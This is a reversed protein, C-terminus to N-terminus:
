KKKKKKDKEEEEEEKKEAEEIAESSSNTAPVFATERPPNDMYAYITYGSMIVWSVLIGCTGSLTVKDMGLAIEAGPSIESGTTIGTYENLVESPRELRGLVAFPIVVKLMVMFVFVPLILMAVTAILFPRAAAANEPKNLAATFQNFRKVKEAFSIPAGDTPKGTDVNASSFYADEKDLIDNPKFLESLVTSTSQATYSITGDKYPDSQVQEVKKTTSSKKGEEHKNNSNNNNNNSSSSTSKKGM